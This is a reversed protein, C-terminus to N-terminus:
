QSLNNSVWEDITASELHRECPLKHLMENVVKNSHRCELWNLAENDNCFWWDVPGDRLKFMDKKLKKTGCWWCCKARRVQMKKLHRPIFVGM